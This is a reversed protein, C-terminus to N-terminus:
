ETLLCHYDFWPNEGNMLGDVGLNKWSDLDVKVFENASKPQLGLSHGCLYIPNSSPFHFNEKLSKLQDKSDLENPSTTNYQLNM